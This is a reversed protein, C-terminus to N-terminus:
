FLTKPIRLQITKFPGYPFVVLLIDSREPIIYNYLSWLPTFESRKIVDRLLSPGHCKRAESRPTKRAGGQGLLASGQVMFRLYVRM